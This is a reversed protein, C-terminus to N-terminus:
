GRPQAAACENRDVAAATLWTQVLSQLVGFAAGGELADALSGAGEMDGLLVAQM